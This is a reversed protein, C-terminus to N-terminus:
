TIPRSGPKAIPVGERCLPCEDATWTPFDATVLHRSPLPDFPTPRGSRNVLSGVGVVVAGLDGLIAIVERTSKGTTVVDEIVVVRQGPAIGFGRRLVMDGDARETFLFPLELARATEHGIILGGMAPAVVIDPALEATRISAALLGGARAARRPQALYLAGQLYDGPHLGPPLLFHGRPPAGGDPPPARPPP